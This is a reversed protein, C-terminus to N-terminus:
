QGTLAIGNSGHLSGTATRLGFLQLYLTFGPPLLGHPLQLWNPAFPGLVLDCTHLLPCSSQPLPALAQNVGVALLHADSAPNSLGIMLETGGGFLRRALTASCGPGYTDIADAHPIFRVRMRAAYEGITVGAFAHEHTVRVLMPQSPLLTCDVGPNAWSPTALTVDVTGDNGIDCTMTNLSLGGYGSTTDLAPEVVLAGAVAFPSTFAIVHDGSVISEFALTAPWTSFRGAVAIECTTGLSTTTVGTSWTTSGSQGPVFTSTAVLPPANTVDTGAPITASQPAAGAIWADVSVPQLTTVSVAVQAPLAALCTITSAAARAFPRLTM